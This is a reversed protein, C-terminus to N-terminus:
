KSMYVKYALKILAVTSCKKTRISPDIRKSKGRIQDYLKEIQPVLELCKHIVTPVFKDSFRRESLVYESREILYNFVDQLADCQQLFKDILPISSSRIITIKALQGEVQTKFERIKPDFAPKTQKQDVFVYETEEEDDSDDFQLNTPEAYVDMPERRRFDKVPAGPCEGRPKESHRKQLHRPANVALAPDRVRFGNADVWCHSVSAKPYHKRPRPNPSLVDITKLRHHIREFESLLDYKFLKEFKVGRNWQRCCAAPPFERISKIHRILDDIQDALDVYNNEHIFKPILSEEYVLRATSILQKVQIYADEETKDLQRLDALTQDISILGSRMIEVSFTSKIVSM